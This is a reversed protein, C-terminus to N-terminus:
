SLLKHLTLGVGVLDVAVVILKLSKEPKAILHAADLNSKTGDAFQMETLPNKRRIDKCWRSLNIEIGATAAMALAVLVAVIGITSANVFYSIVTPLAAWSFAFSMDSHFIGSWRDTNYAFLFFSELSVFALLVLSTLVGSAAYLVIIGYAAILMAAVFPVVFLIELESKRLADGWHRAHLENLAHASLGLGLFYALLTLIVRNLYISPSLAAGILVYSLVM